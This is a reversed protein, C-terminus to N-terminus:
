EKKEEQAERGTFDVKEPSMAGKDKDQHKKEGGSAAGEMTQDDQEQEEEAGDASVFVHICKACFRNTPGFSESKHDSKYSNM